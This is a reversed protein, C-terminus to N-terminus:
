DNACGERDPHVQDIRRDAEHGHQQHQRRDGDDIYRDDESAFSSSLRVSAGTDFPLEHRRRAVLLSPRRQASRRLAQATEAAAKETVAYAYAVDDQVSTVHRFGTLHLVTSDLGGPGWRQPLRGLELRV